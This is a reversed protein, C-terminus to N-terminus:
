NFSMSVVEDQLQVSMLGRRVKGDADLVMDVFGIQGLERLTPPPAVQNGVMKEVGILNPTSKM